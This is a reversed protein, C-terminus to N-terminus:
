IKKPQEAQEENEVLKTRLDLIILMEERTLDNEFNIHGSVAKNLVEILERRM